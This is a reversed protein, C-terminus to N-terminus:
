TQTIVEIYRNDAGTSTFLFMLTSGNTDAAALNLTYIGSGIETATNVTAGFAGGNISVQSTITLGTAPTIHDTSSLMLFMFGNLAANKKVFLQQSAINVPNTVSVVSPIIVGAQTGSSLSYGAKDNNTTVTVGSIVSGVSGSLNISYTGGALQLTTGSTVNLANLNAAIVQDIFNTADVNTGTCWYALDGQTATDVGTLSVTYIGAGVAAVSGAAPAFAGGSKSLNVTVTIGTAGTLHDASYVMLFARTYSSNNLILAM